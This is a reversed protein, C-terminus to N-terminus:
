EGAASLEMTLTDGGGLGIAAVAGINSASCTVTKASPGCAADASPLVTITHSSTLTYGSVTPAVSFTEAADTGVWEYIDSVHTLEGATAPAAFALTLLTILLGLRLM